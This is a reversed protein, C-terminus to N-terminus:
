CSFLLLGGIKNQKCEELTFIGQITSIFYIKKKNELKVLDKYNFYRFNSPKSIIKLQNLSSNNFLIRLKVSIYFNNNLYVVEYSQILGERYLCKITLITNKYYPLIVIEKKLISCNKLKILNKILNQNM